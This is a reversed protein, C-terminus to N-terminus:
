IGFRNLISSGKTIDETEENGFEEEFRAVTKPNSKRLYKLVKGLALPNEDKLKRLALMLKEVDGLAGNSLIAIYLDRAPVLLDTTPSFENERRILRDYKKNIIYILGKRFFQDLKEMSSTGISILAKNRNTEEKASYGEKNTLRVNLTEFSLGGIQDCLNFPDANIKIDSYEYIKGGNFFVDQFEKYSPLTNLVDHDTIMSSLGSHNKYDNIIEKTNNMKIVKSWNSKIWKELDGENLGREKRLLIFRTISYKILKELTDFSGYGYTNGSSESVQCWQNNYKYLRTNGAYAGKIYVRGTKVPKFLDDIPSSNGNAVLTQLFKGDESNRIYDMIVPGASPDESENLYSKFELLHKM